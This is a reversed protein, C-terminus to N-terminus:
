LDYSEGASEEEDMDGATMKRCKEACEGCMEACKVMKEDDFKECSEACQDCIEACLACMEEAFQSGRLMFDAAVACIKACDQMLTIHEVDAHDGGQELCYQSTKTCMKYCHMCAKKCEKMTDDMEEM